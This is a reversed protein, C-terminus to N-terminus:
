AGDNPKRSPSGHGVVFAVPRFSERWRLLFAADEGPERRKLETRQQPQPLIHLVVRDSLFQAEACALERRLYTLNQRFDARAISCLEQHYRIAKPRATMTGRPASYDLM